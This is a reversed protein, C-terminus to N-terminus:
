NFFVEKAILSWVLSNERTSRRTAVHSIHLLYRLVRVFTAKTVKTMGRTKRGTSLFDKIVWFVVCPQTAKYERSLVRKLSHYTGLCSM